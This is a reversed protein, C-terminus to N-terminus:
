FYITYMCYKAHLQKKFTTILRRGLFYVKDIFPIFIMQEKVLEICIKFNNKKSNYLNTTNRLGLLHGSFSAAFIKWSSMKKKINQM